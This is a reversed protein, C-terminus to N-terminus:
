EGVNVNTYYIPELEYENAVHYSTVPLMLNMLNSFSFIIASQLLGWTEPSVLITITFTEGPSLIIPYYKNKPLYM